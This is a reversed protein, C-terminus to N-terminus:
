RFFPNVGQGFEKNAIKELGQILKEVGHKRAANWEEGGAQKGKRYKL